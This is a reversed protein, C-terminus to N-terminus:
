GKRCWRRWSADTAPSSAGRRFARAAAPVNAYEESWLFGQMFLADDAREHEPYLEVVRSYYDIRARVDAVVARHDSPTRGGLGTHSLM